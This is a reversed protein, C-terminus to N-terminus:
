KPIRQGKRDIVLQCRAPMDRALGELGRGGNKKAFAGSNMFNEVKKMRQTFQWPTEGLRVCAFDTESLRRIHSIVTEHLYVDGWKAVLWTTPDHIGGVWSTFGADELARAFTVNLRDHISTVMYSAKDHVITRPLNAWKCSKRMEELVNPLVSSIFKALNAADTLKAPYAPDRAAREGDLVVIRLKGRAFVPTWDVRVSASSQTMATSPARLNNGDRASGKSTWKKKGMAKVQQEEFKAITKPLLSYCPDFAVHSFWTRNTMSQKIHKACNVRKPILEKPLVDQSM